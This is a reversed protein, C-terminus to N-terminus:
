VAPLHRKRFTYPFSFPQQNWCRLQGFSTKGKRKKNRNGKMRSADNVCCFVSSDATSFLQASIYRISALGEKREDSLTKEDVWRHSDEGGM